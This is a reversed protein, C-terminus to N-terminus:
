LLVIVKVSLVTVEDVCIAFLEGVCIYFLSYYCEACCLDMYLYSLCLNSHHIHVCVFGSLM